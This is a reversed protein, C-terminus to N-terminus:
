VLQESEEEDKDGFTADLLAQFSSSQSRLIRKNSPITTWDNNDDDHDQYSSLRPRGRKKKQKPSSSPPTEKPHNSTTPAVNALQELVQIKQQLLKTMHRLHEVEERLHILLQDKISEDSTPPVVSLRGDDHVDHQVLSLPKRGKRNESRPPLNAQHNQIESGAVEMMEDPISTKSNTKSSNKNGKNNQRQQHSKENGQKPPPPEQQEVDLDVESLGNSVIEHILSM